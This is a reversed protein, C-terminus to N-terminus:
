ASRHWDITRRLADRLSLKQSVGLEHKAREVSPVYRSAPRDPEPERAISVAAKPTFCSAVLEALSRIDIAEAAGVNYPRSTEGRAFIAWLWVTMESAYQYSRFPTGDGGVRIESGALGDRIFNGIAFHRDLPLYPGVFAFLRAIKADIGSRAALACLLESVRKGEHYASGPDTTLPAGTYTEALADLTPPQVGYIAGSSTLLFPITGSTRAVDLARQTGAITVELMREPQEENMKASASTAAHVVADYRVAGAVYRTIDGRIFHFANNACAPVARLFADPDRTLVDARINTDLRANAHVISRLLWTGVFGTGGTIFLRANAFSRLDAAAQEVISDLDARLPDLM